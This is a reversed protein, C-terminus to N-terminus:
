VNIHYPASNNMFTEIQSMITSGLPKQTGLFPFFTYWKDKKQLKGWHQDLAYSTEFKKKQTNNNTNFEKMEKEMHKLANKFVHLLTDYYHEQIIYASAGTSSIIKKVDKMKETDKLDNDSIHLFIIDWNDKFKQFFINIKNNIEESKKTFVFDDEFIIVTKLKNEKAYELAKIHSKCAGIHGNYKEYVADIRYIKSDPIHLKKFEGLLQKKRDERKELNIYLFKDINDIFSYQTNDFYEKKNTNCFLLLVLMSILIIIYIKHKQKM